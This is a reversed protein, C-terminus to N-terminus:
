KLGDGRKLGTLHITLDQQALVCEAAIANVPTAADEPMGGKCSKELAQCLVSLQDAGFDRASSKLTHAARGLSKQDGVNAARQMQEVLMPSEDLFSEILEALSNPDGGILELLKDLAARVITM